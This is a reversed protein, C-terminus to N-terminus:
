VNVKFWVGDLMQASATSVTVLSSSVLLMAVALFLKVSRM